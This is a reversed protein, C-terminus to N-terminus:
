RAVCLPRVFIGREFTGVYPHAAALRRINIDVKAGDDQRRHSLKDKKESGFQFSEGDCTQYPVRFSIECPLTFSM